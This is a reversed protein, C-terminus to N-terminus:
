DMHCVLVVTGAFKCCGPLRLLKRDIKRLLLEREPWVNALRGFVRFYTRSCRQFCSEVYQLDVEKLKREGADLPELPVGCHARAWDLTACHSVPEVCVLAGGPRLWSKLVRIASRLRDPLHHLVAYCLVLDAPEPHLDEFDGCMLEIRNEVHDAVARSTTMRILEPDVEIGVVHKAGLLALQSTIQGTGCGFDIWTKGAPPFYHFVFEKEYCSWNSSFRYRELIEAPMAEIEEYLQAQTM